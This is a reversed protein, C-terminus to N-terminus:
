ACVEAAIVGDGSPAAGDVTVSIANSERYAAGQYARVRIEYTTGDSKAGSTYTVGRLLEGTAVTAVESGDEVIKWEDVDDLNDGGIRWTAVYKAGAIAVVRELIPREAPPVDVEVLDGGDMGLAVVVEGSPGLTGDSLMARVGFRWVGEWLTSSEWSEGDPAAHGARLAFDSNAHEGFQSGDGGFIPVNDFVVLSVVDSAQGEPNTWTLTVKRTVESYSAALGTVAIPAAVIELETVGGITSQNGVSDRYAIAFRYTGAELASTVFRMRARNRITALVTAPTGGEGEDWLIVYADFDADTPADEWTLCIRSGVTRRVFYQYTGPWAGAEVRSVPQLGINVESGARLGGITATGEGGTDVGILVDDRWVEMAAEDAGFRSGDFDLGPRDTEWELVATDGAVARLGAGYPLWALPVACGSMVRGSEFGPTGITM